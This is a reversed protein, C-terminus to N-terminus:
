RYAHREAYGSRSREACSNGAARVLHAPDGAGQDAMDVIIRHIAFKAGVDVGRTPEDLVLLTPKTLLWKALVVKQQNGGSLLRVPKEPEPPLINFTDIAQRALRVERRGSVFGAFRTLARLSPLAVNKRTSLGLHVGQGKRDEPVLVIGHKAADKPSRIRVMRGNRYICGSVPREIGAIVRALSTRGSGVLGVIGLVEGRHVELDIPDAGEWLRMDEVRLVTDDLNPKASREFAYLDRGVMMRVLGGATVESRPLTAVLRGDKLVTVRDALQFVEDLRHSIYIVAVGSARLARVVEFLRELERGALVASPEDMVIVQSGEELTKAIEVLQQQAVTLDMVRASLDVEVGLRRFAGRAGVEMERRRLGGLIGHLERGLYVNEVVTMWPLLNFEQYIIGIGAQKALIPDLSPYTRGGIVIEGDDADYAGALIKMLTSKGAGNEGVLAHVEGARAEFSVGDLAIVGGFTKRIARMSLLTAGDEPLGVDQSFSAQVPM